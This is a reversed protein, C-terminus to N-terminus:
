PKGAASMATPISVAVTGDPTDAAVARAAVHKTEPASEPDTGPMTAFATRTPARRNSSRAATDTRTPGNSATAPQPMSAAVRSPGADGWAVVEDATGSLSM